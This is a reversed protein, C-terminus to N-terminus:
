RKRFERMRWRAREVPDTTLTDIWENPVIAKDEGIRVADAMDMINSVQCWHSNLYLGVFDEYTKPVM